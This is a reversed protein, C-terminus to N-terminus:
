RLLKRELLSVLRVAQAPALRVLLDVLVADSGVRIRQKGKAVADLIIQAAKDPTTRLLKENYLRQRREEAETVVEGRARADLLSNNAINTAVGGPHVVSVKVPLRDRQMEAALCETFGRVAFKSACYQSMNPQALYGNLSSVNVVHGDGSAILHPLFAQTGHIVGHLNVRLVREYDSWAANKVSKSFAIGANNVIQNVTGFHAVVEDAYNQFAERDGVDLVFTHLDGPVLSATEKLGAEDRDAGSVRAGRRALEIALARGIGSGAGTVAVVKGQFTSPTM